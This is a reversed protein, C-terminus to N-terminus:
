IIDIIDREIYTKVYNSYYNKIPKNEIEWRAPYFGRIISEYLEDNSLNRSVNHKFMKENNIRFIQNDDDWGRIEKKSLSSMNIIGVRESMSESVEKMLDFKQSGTLIYMGNAEQSGKLRRIENVRRELENFIEKVKQVEDLILHSCYKDLFVRPSEKAEKLLLDDDFSLYKYNYTREIESVLTTKGVQRAGTILTIPYEEISQIIQHLIERKYIM